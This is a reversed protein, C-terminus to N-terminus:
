WLGRQPLSAWRDLGRRMSLGTLYARLRLPERPVLTVTLGTSLLPRTTVRPSPHSLHRSAAHMVGDLVGGLLQVTDSGLIDDAVLRGL